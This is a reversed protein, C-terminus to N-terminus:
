CKRGFRDPLTRGSLKLARLGEIQGDIFAGVMEPTPDPMTSLEAFVPDVGIPLVSRQAMAYFKEKQM